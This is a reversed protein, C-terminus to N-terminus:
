QMIFKAGNYTGPEPGQGMPRCYVVKFGDPATFPQGTAPLNFNYTNPAGLGSDYWLIASKNTPIVMANYTKLGSNAMVDIQTANTVHNYNSFNKWATGDNTSIWWFEDTISQTFHAKYVGGQCSTFTITHQAPFSMQTGNFTWHSFTYGSSPTATIRASNQYSLYVTGDVDETQVVGNEIKGVKATGGTGSEVEIVAKACAKFNMGGIVPNMTYPNATLTQTGGNFTWKEFIYHESPTFSITATGGHHVTQTAPTVVGVCSSPFPEGSWTYDMCGEFQASYTLSQTVTITQVLSSTNPGHNWGIFNSEGTPIVGIEVETGAPYTGSGYVSGASSPCAM